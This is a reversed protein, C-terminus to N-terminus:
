PRSPAIIHDNSVLLSALRMDNVRIATSFQDYMIVVVEELKNIIHKTVSHLLVYSGSYKKSTRLCLESRGHQTKVRELLHQCQIEVQSYM